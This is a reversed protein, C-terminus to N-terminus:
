GRGGSEAPQDRYRELEARNAELFEEELEFAVENHVELYHEQQCAYDVTALDLEYEKLEALKEPDVDMDPGIKVAGSGSPDGDESTQLEMMKDFVSGNADDPTEFDPYGGDAMCNAWAASADVVRQDNRVREWLASVDDILGEFKDLNQEPAATAEESDGYVEDYAKGSCGMDDPSVSVSAGGSDELVVPEDGIDGWLAQDYAEQASDSLANRIEKNPDKSEEVDGGFTLTSIGYGYTRAFEEPELSYAEDVFSPSMMSDFSQPLYEFGEDRMCEATLEETRQFNRREEETPERDDETAVAMGGFGFGTSTPSHGLYETLPSAADDDSSNETSSPQGGGGGDDSCGTMILGTIGVAAWITMRTRMNM